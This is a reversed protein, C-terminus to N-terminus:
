AVLENDAMYSVWQAELEHSTSLIGGIALDGGGPGGSPFSGTTWVPTSTGDSLIIKPRSNNQGHLFPPLAITTVNTPGGDITLGLFPLYIDCKLGKKKYYITVATSSVPDTYDATTVTSGSYEGSMPAWNYNVGDDDLFCYFQECAHHALLTLCGRRDKIQAFMSASNFITIIRGNYAVNNPFVFEEGPSAVGGSRELKIFNIGLAPTMNTAAGSVATLTADVPQVLPLRKIAETLQGWAGSEDLAGTTRLTQGSDEVALCLEEQIANAADKSIVTAPNVDTYRRKGLVTAYDPGETRHM